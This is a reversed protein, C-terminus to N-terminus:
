ELRLEFVLDPYGKKRYPALFALPFILFGRGLFLNKKSYLDALEGPKIGADVQEIENSFTWLHGALIRRDCNNKLVIKPYPM